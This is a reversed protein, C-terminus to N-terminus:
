NCFYFFLFIEFVNFPLQIHLGIAMLSKTEIKVFIHVSSDDVDAQKITLFIFKYCVLKSQPFCLLFTM